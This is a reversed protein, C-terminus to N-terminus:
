RGLNRRRAAAGLRGAAVAEDGSFKHATGAAHAAKGGKRCIAERMEGSMAAFGRPASKPMVGGSAIFDEINESFVDEVGKGKLKDRAKDASAKSFHRSVVVASAASAMGGKTVVAVVKSM